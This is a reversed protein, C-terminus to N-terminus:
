DEDTWSFTPEEVEEEEKPRKGWTIGHTLWALEGAIIAASVTICLGCLKFYSGWTIPKALFAKIKSM